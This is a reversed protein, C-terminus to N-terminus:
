EGDAPDQFLSGTPPWTSANPTGLDDTAPPEIGNVYDDLAEAPILVRRDMRLHFLKGSAILRTMTTLSIRLTKAAEQRTLLNQATYRTTTM